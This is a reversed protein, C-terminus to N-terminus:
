RGLGISQVNKDIGACGAAPHDAASTYGAEFQAMMSLRADPAM